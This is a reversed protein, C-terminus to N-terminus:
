RIRSLIGKELLIQISVPTKFQMGGGTYGFAPMTNGATVELPKLVKYVSYPAYASSPPLSRMEFPTGLPSLFSGGPYGYRDVITGPMLYTRFPEGHFGNNSPWYEQIASTNTNNAGTSGAMMFLTAM